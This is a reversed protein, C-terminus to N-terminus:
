EDHYNAFRVSIYGTQSVEKNNLDHGFLEIKAICELMATPDDVLYSLPPELKASDRVIMLPFSVNTGIPLLQSLSGEFHYPVTVGEEPFVSDARLYTVVYKTLMIDNYQSPGNIPKPDLLSAKVTITVFDPYVLDNKRVDSFVVTSDNGQVDKGMISQIIIFSNSQYNKELPNCSILLIVLAALSVIKLGKTTKMNM